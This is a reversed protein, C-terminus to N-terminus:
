VEWFLLAVLFECLANEGWVRQWGSEEFRRLAVQEVFGEYEDGLKWRAKGKGRIRVANLFLPAFSCGADGSRRVRISHHCCPCIRVTGIADPNARLYTGCFCVVPIKCDTNAV